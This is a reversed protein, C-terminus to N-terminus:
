VIKGVFHMEKYFVDIVESKKTVNINQVKRPQEDVMLLTPKHENQEKKATFSSDGEIQIAEQAKEKNELLLKDIHANNCLGSVSCVANSDMQSALTDVLEPIFDDSLKQCEKKFIKLSL